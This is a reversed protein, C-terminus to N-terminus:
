KSGELRRKILALTKELSSRSKGVASRRVFGGKFGRGEPHDTDRVCATLDLASQFYHSSYLQKMAVVYDPEAPGAGRYLIRQVIRLTPKLGFNVREWFFESEANELKLDPYELLYRGLDPLYVPLAEMGGLLSRFVEAVETPRSKDSYTGLAANGKQIYRLLGQLAMRQALRNAQQTADPAEWNVSRRFEEMAEASLQFECDGPKCNKLGQVEGPEVTFGELDSLQPPKSFKRIAQVGPLKRLEDADGSIRAYSEPPAEIYVAGFVYVEDPIRSKLVKAVPKGSRIAEIQADNLGAYQRFFKDPERDQAGARTGAVGLFALLLLNTAFAPVHSSARPM